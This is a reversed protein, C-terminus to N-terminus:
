YSCALIVVKDTFFRAWCVSSIKARMDTNVLKLHGMENLNTTATCAQNLYSWPRFSSWFKSRKVSSFTNSIQGDSHVTFFGNQWSELGSRWEAPVLRTHLQPQDLIFDLKANCDLVSSYLDPYPLIWYQAWVPIKIDIKFLSRSPPFIHHLSNQEKADRQNIFILKSM